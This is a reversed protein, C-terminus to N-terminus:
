LCAGTFGEGQDRRTGGAVSGRRPQIDYLEVRRYFTLADRSRPTGQRVTVDAFCAGGGPSYLPATSLTRVCVVPEDVLVETADTFGTGRRSVSKVDTPLRSPSVGDVGWAM